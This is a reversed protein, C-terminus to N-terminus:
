VETVREECDGKLYFTWHILCSIVCLLVRQIFPTRRLINPSISTAESENFVNSCWSQFLLIEEMPRKHKEESAYSELVQSSYDRSVALLGYFLTVTIFLTQVADSYSM